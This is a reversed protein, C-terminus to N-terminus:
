YTQGDRIVPGDPRAPANMLVAIDDGRTLLEYSRYSADGHLYKRDADPWGSAELFAAIDRLRDLRAAFKGRGTLRLSRTEGGPIQAIEIDLRDAPLEGARDPWEVLTIADCLADEWGLEELESAHNLRYLDFHAILGSATQYSQVLNFTPSPVDQMRDRALTRILIRAFATKGAGLDGSLTVLDGSRLGPALARALVQLRDESEASFIWIGQPAFTNM